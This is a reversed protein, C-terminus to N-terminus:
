DSLINEVDALCEKALRTAEQYKVTLNKYYSAYRYLMMALLGKESQKPFSRRWQNFLTNIEKEIDRTLEQDQFPVTLKIPEGAIHININIKDQDKM